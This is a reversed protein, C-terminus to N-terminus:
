HSAICADSLKDAPTSRVTKQAIHVPQRIPGFRDLHQLHV